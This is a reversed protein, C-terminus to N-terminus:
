VPTGHLCAGLHRPVPGLSFSRTMLPLRRRHGGGHRWRGVNGLTCIAVYVSGCPAHKTGWGDERSM